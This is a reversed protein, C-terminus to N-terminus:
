NSWDASNCFAWSRSIAWFFVDFDEGIVVALVQQRGAFHHGALFPIAVDGLDHDFVFVSRHPASPPCWCRPLCRPWGWPAGCGSFAWAKMFKTRSPPLQGSSRRRRNLVGRGIGRGLFQHRPSVLIRGDKGGSFDQGFALRCNIEAFLCCLDAVFDPGADLCGSPASRTLSVPCPMSTMGTANALWIRQITTCPPLRADQFAPFVVFPDEPDKAGPVM